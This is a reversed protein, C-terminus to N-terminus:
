VSLDAPRAHEGRQPSGPSCRQVDPWPGTFPRRHSILMGSAPV